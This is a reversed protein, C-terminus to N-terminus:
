EFLDDPLDKAELGYGEAWKLVKERTVQTILQLSGRAETLKQTLAEVERKSADLLTSLEEIKPTQSEVIQRLSEYAQSVVLIKSREVALEGTLSAVLDQASNRQQRLTETQANLKITTQEIPQQQSM